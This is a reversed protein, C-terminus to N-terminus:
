KELDGEKYNMMYDENRVCYDNADYSNCIYKSVYSVVRFGLKEYLPKGEDTPILM